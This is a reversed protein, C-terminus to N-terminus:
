AQLLCRYTIVLVIEGEIFATTSAAVVSLTDTAAFANAASVASGAVVKGLTDLGATTLAVAGGTVAVAGIELHLTSLKDATSAVVKAFANVSVIEGVFDLPLDTVIDGDAITALDIPICMMGYSYSVADPVNQALKLQVRVLSSSIIEIITGVFVKNTSSGAVVVTGDYGAYVPLGLDTQAATSKTFIANGPMQVRVRKGGQAHGTLTNDVEELAVGVFVSGSDDGMPTGYGSTNICVGVGRYIHVNDEMLLSLIKGEKIQPDRNASVDAM